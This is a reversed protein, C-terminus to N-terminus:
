RPTGIKPGPGKSRPRPRAVSGIVILAMVLGTASAPLPVTALQRDRLLAVPADFNFDRVEVVMRVGGFQEFEPTGSDYNFETTRTVTGFLEVGYLGTATGDPANLSTQAFLYFTPLNTGPERLIAVQSMMDNILDFALAASPNDPSLRIGVNVDCDTYFYGSSFEAGTESCLEYARRQTLLGGFFSAFPLGDTLQQETTVAFSRNEFRVSEAVSQTACICAALAMTILKM